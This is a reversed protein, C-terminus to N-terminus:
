INGVNTREKNNLYKDLIEALIHKGIINIKNSYTAIHKINNKESAEKYYSLYMNLIDKNDKYAQTNMIFYSDDKRSIPIILLGKTIFELYGVDLPTMTDVFFRINNGLYYKEIEDRTRKWYESDIFERDFVKGNYRNM